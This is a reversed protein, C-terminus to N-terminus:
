SVAIDFMSYCVIAMSVLFPDTVLVANRLQVIHVLPLLFLKRPELISEQLLRVSHLPSLPLTPM